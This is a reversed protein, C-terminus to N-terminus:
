PLSRIMGGDVAVISGTVYGAAPSLLFTAVRGVDSPDGYRGLPIRAITDARVQEVSTAAAEARQEDLWTIRDTSVRGPAVGNIRIPAIETVLSKILGALGPRLVNSTTLAPIPERVSSSLVILISPDHGARLHPLAERILRIAAYLVGDIAAAWTSEDLEEFRGGAPGGSNVVLLDLGGLAAVTAAIASAPGDPRSLDAAVATAGLLRAREDLRDSGRAALAVRAGEAVLVTAIAAGLGSSGGGVLARAGNLGLDM